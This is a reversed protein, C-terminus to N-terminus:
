SRRFWGTLSWRDFHTALVAHPVTDSRFVVLRGWLPELIELNEGDVKRIVLQGGHEPKWAKNLYLVFSFVREGLFSSSTKSQDIHEDYASGPGYKAFHCETSDIRQRMEQSLQNQLSQLIKQLEQNLPNLALLDVWCILDSRIHSAMKQEAGRGIKSKKFQGQNWLDQAQMFLRETLAKCLFQDQMTWHRDTLEIFHQETLPSQM